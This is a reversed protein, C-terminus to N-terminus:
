SKAGKALGDDSSAAPEAPVPAVPAKAAQTPKVKASGSIIAAIRAARQPEMENMVASAAKMELKTLMAAATEEDMEALQLAAADPRM